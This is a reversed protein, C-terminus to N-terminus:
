DEKLRPDDTAVCQAWQFALDVLVTDVQGYTPPWSGIWHTGNWLPATEADYNKRDYLLAKECEDASNFAQVRVWQSFPLPSGPHPIILYWSVLTLAAARCLKM